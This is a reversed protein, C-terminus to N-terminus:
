PNSMPCILRAALLRFITTHVWVPDDILGLSASAFYTLAFIGGGLVLPGVHLAVAYILIRRALSRARRVRWIVNFSHDITLMLMIATALLVMSGLVTLGSAKQTFELAYRAVVAGAKDPLLYDLLFRHLAIGLRGFLPVESFLLLSVALLPILGLLTTFALSAAV